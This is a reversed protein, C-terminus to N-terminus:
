RVTARRGPRRRRRRTPTSRCTSSRRPRARRPPRRGRPLRGARCRRPALVAPRPEVIDHVHLVRRAAGAPLAPLLRGCVTGNLYVVDAERALSRALPWALVAPAGSRPALGGLPLARWHYGAAIARDRLPGEGPTTLTVEWGRRQLRPSCACSSRDRRRGSSRGARGWIITAQPEAVGRSVSPVDCTHPHRVVVLIQPPAQGLSSAGARSPAAAAAEQQRATRPPSVAHEVEAAPLAVEGSHERSGAAVRDPDLDSVRRQRPRASALRLEVEPPDGISPGSGNSSSANSSTQALSTISCTASVARQSESTRRTSTGPPRSSSVVGAWPRSRSRARRSRASRRAARRGGAGTSAGSASRTAARTRIRARAPENPRPPAARM